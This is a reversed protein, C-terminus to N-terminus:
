APAHLLSQTLSYFPCGRMSGTESGGGILIGLCTTGQVSCRIGPAPYHAKARAPQGEGRPIRKLRAHSWRRQRAGSAPKSAGRENREEKPLPDDKIKLVDEGVLSGGGGPIRVRVRLHWDETQASTGTGGLRYKTLDDDGKEPVDEGIAERAGHGDRGGGTDRGRMDSAGGNVASRPARPWLLV